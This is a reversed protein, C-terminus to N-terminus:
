ENTIRNQANPCYLTKEETLKLNNTSLNIRKPFSKLTIVAASNRLKENKKAWCKFTM